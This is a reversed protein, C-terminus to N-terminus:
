KQGAIAAALEIRAKRYVNRRAEGEAYSAIRRAADGVPGFDDTEYQGNTVIAEREGVPESARLASLTTSIPAVGLSQPTQGTILIGSRHAVLYRGDPWTITFDDDSEDYEVAFGDLWAVREVLGGDALRPTSQHRHRDFHLVASVARRARNMQSKSLDSPSMPRESEPVDSHLERLMEFVLDDIHAIQARANHALESAQTVEPTNNTM